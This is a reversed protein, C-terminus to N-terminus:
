KTCDRVQVEPLAMMAEFNQCKDKLTKIAVQILLSVWYRYISFTYLTLQTFSSYIHKQSSTYQNWLSSVKEGSERHTAQCVQGFAGEGLTQAIKYRHM